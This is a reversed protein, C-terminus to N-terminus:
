YRQLNKSAESKKQITPFSAETKLQIDNTKNNYKTTAVTLTDIDRALKDNTEKTAKAESVSNRNVRRTQDSSVTTERERIAGDFDAKTHDSSSKKKCIIIGYLKKLWAKPKEANMREANGPVNSVQVLQWKEM